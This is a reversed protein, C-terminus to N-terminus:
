GSLHTMAFRLLTTTGASNVLTLCGRGGKFTYSSASTITLNTQVGGVRNIDEVGSTIKGTGDATFSGAISVPGSADFVRLLLAYPASSSLKSEDGALCSDDPLNAAITVSALGIAPIPTQSDTVQLDTREGLGPTTDPTTPSGTIIGDSSLS